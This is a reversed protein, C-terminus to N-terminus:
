KAGRHKAFADQLSVGNRVDVECAGDVRVVEACGELVAHIDAAPVIVVGNVDAIVYDGPHVQVVDSSPHTSVPLSIVENVTSVRTRGQASLTSTGRAFVPFSHARMEDVDRIRGNIIAGRVKNFQARAALLGGFVSNTAAPPVDVVLISNAPAADVYNGTYKPATSDSALVIKVPFARGVVRATFAADTSVPSYAVIDPVFSDKRGLKQLADSVDCTSYSQLRELLQAADTDAGSM